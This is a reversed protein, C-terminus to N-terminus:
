RKGERSRSGTLCGRGGRAPFTPIPAFLGGHINSNTRHTRANALLRAGRGGPSPNPHPCVSAAM